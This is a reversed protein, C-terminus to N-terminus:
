QKEWRKVMERLETLQESREAPWAGSARAARAARAAWAAEASGAAARAAWAAEAAETAAWAAEEAEAWAAWVAEAAAAAAETAARAAAAERDDGTKLFHIVMEKQDSEILHAVKLAQARTWADVDARQAESLQKTNDLYWLAHDLGNSDLSQLLTAEGGPHAAKFKECGEGCAGLEQLEQLTIKM